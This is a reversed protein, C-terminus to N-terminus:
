NQSSIVSVESVTLSLYTYNCRFVLLLDYADQRIADQTIRFTVKATQFMELEWVEAFM